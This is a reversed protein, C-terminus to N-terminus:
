LTIKLTWLPLAVGRGRGFGSYLPYLRGAGITSDPPQRIPSYTMAPNKIKLGGRPPNKQLM